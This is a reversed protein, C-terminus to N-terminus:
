HHCFLQLLKHVSMHQVSCRYQILCTIFTIYNRMPIQELKYLLKYRDNSKFVSLVNVLTFNSRHKSRQNRNIRKDHSKHNRQRKDNNTM